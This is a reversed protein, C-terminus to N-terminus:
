KVRMRGIQISGSTVPAESTGIAIVNGSPDLQTVYIMYEGPSLESLQIRYQDRILEKELWKSTPYLDSILRKEGLVPRGEQDRLEIRISSDGDVPPGGLWFLTLHAIDNLAFVGGDEERGLPHLKFGFLRLGNSFVASLPRRDELVTLAPPTTPAVVKIPGFLFRDGIPKGSKDVFSLRQGSRPQYLGVELQYEGPPTGPLVPVGRRDEVRTGPAWGDTPRSGGAPEGDMQGWLIEKADLVHVFVTYREEIKRQTEWTLTLDIADGPELIRTGYRVSTLRLGNALNASVHQDNSEASSATSYVSLRINGFWRNDTKFSNRDLWHEIYGGPDSEATAWLLLWVRTHKQVISELEGATDNEDLPRQQPLPYVQNDRNYYYRFIEEQGPANLIIADGAAIRSQVFGVLGRYDDRAYRADFYYARLAHSSSYAVLALAALIIALSWIAAANRLLPGEGLPISRPGSRVRHGAFPAVVSARRLTSVVLKSFWKWARCGAQRLVELGLGLVLCYAPVAILLFKPNYMPRQISLAYMILVPVALYLVVSLAGLYKQRLRAIPLLCLALLLVYFVAERKPTTAADSSLGFSFVLFVRQLLTALSFANGISPWSQLQDFTLILWPSYIAVIIVQIIVWQVLRRIIAGRRRESAVIAILALVNQAVLITFSFYHSYLMAATVLVYCTIPLARRLKSRPIDDVRSSILRLFLYFSLAALFTVQSYMRAEQSYYLLFPSVAALVAAFVGVQSNFLRKGLSYIVAVLLVGAALSLWRLALESTGALTAWIHLLYYYLPPHIDGAARVTIDVLDRTSMAASVGEDYWLSQGDIRYARLAAAVLVSVGVAAVVLSDRVDAKTRSVKERTLEVVRTGM